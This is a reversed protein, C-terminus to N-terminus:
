RKSKKDSPKSIERKCYPCNVLRKFHSTYIVNRTSKHCATQNGWHPTYHTYTTEM